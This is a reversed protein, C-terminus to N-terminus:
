PMCLGRVTSYGAPLHPCPSAHATGWCDGKSHLFCALISLVQMVPPLVAHQLMCRLLSSRALIVGWYDLAQACISIKCDPPLCCSLMSVQSM